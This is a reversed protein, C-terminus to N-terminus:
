ERGLESIIERAGISIFSTKSGWFTITPDCVRKKKLIVNKPNLPIIDFV